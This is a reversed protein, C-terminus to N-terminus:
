RCIVDRAICEAPPRNLFQKQQHLAYKCFSTVAKIESASFLLYTISEWKPLLDFCMGDCYTFVQAKYCSDVHTSPYTSYDLEAPLTSSEFPSALGLHATLTSRAFPSTEAELSPKM